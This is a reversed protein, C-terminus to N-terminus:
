APVLGLLLYLDAGLQALVFCGALLWCKPVFNPCLACTTHSVHWAAQLRKHALVGHLQRGSGPPAWNSVAQRATSYLLLELGSACGLVLDARPLWSWSHICQTGCRVSSPCIIVFQRYASHSLIRQDLQWLRCCHSCTVWCVCLLQVFVFAFCLCCHMRGAIHLLCLAVGMM